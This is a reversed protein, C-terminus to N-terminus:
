VFITGTMSLELDRKWLRECIMTLYSSTSRFNTHVSSFLYVPVNYKTQFQEADSATLDSLQDFKTIFVITSFSRTPSAQTLKENILEPLHNFGDRDSASIVFMVLDVSEFCDKEIYDFNQFSSPGTDWMDLRFMYTPRNPQNLKVPWYIATTQIGITPQYDNVSQKGQLARILSTKGCSSKGILLVKYRYQKMSLGVSLSPGSLLALLKNENFFDRLENKHRKKLGELIKEAEERNIWQYDFLGGDDSRPVDMTTM